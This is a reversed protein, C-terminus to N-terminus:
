NNYCNSFYSAEEGKGGMSDEYKFIVHSDMLESRRQHFYDLVQTRATQLDPTTLLCKASEKAFHNMEFGFPHIPGPATGNYHSSLQNPVDCASVRLVADSIAAICGVTLIRTADFSRTAKVSLCCAAYHRCLLHLLRLIDSQTEHRMPEARNASAWFCRTDRDPHNHPLPLPIVTTFLHQLLSLRLCYTNKILDSQNGMLTCLHVSHRMATTVDNFTNVKDAVLTLQIPRLIPELRADGILHEISTDKRLRGLMPFDANGERTATEGLMLPEPAEERRAPERLDHVRMVVSNTIAKVENFLNIAVPDETSGIAAGETSAYASAASLGVAAQRAVANLLVEESGSLSDILELDHQAMGVLNARLMAISTTARIKSMGSRQLAFRVAALVTQGVGRLLAIDDASHELVTWDSDSLSTNSLFPQQNLYPMLIGYLTEPTNRKGPHSIMRLLMFWFAGDQLRHGPVGQFRLVANSEVDSTLDDGRTAHYQLSEGSTNVVAVSFSQDEEHTIIYLVLHEDVVQEVGEEAESKDTNHLTHVWGGPVIMISGVSMDRTRKVYDAVTSRLVDDDAAKVPFKRCQAATDDLVSKVNKLIGLDDKSISSREMHAIGSSVLRVTEALGEVAGELGGHPILGTAEEPQQGSHLYPHLFIDNFSRYHWVPSDGFSFTSGGAFGGGGASVQPARAAARPTQRLAPKKKAAAKKKPLQSEDIIEVYNAPFLGPLRGADEYIRGTWWDGEEAKSGAHCLPSLCVSLLHTCM